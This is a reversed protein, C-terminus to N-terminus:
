LLTNISLCNKRCIPCSREENRQMFNEFSTLCALHFLHSCSLLVEGGGKFGEMCIPCHGEGREILRSEINQWASQRVPSIPAPIPLLGRKQAMSLPPPRPPGSLFYGCSTCTLARGPNLQSCSACLQDPVFVEEKESEKSQAYHVDKEEARRPLRTNTSTGNHNGYDDYADKMDGRGRSRERSSSYSDKAQSQAQRVGQRNLNLSPRLNFRRAMDRQLAASNLSVATSGTTSRGMSSMGGTMPLTGSVGKSDGHRSSSSRRSVTMNRPISGSSTHGAALAKNDAEDRQRRINGLARDYDMQMVGPISNRIADRNM